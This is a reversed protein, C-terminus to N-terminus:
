TFHDEIVALTADDVAKWDRENDKNVTVSNPLLLVNTVGDVQVLALALPEDPQDDVAFFRGKAEEQVQRNLVYRHANPNPTEEIRISLTDM